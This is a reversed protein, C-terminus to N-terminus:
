ASNLDGYIFNLLSHIVGRKAHKPGTQDLTVFINNIQSTLQTIQFKCDMLEASCLKLLASYTLIHQRVYYSKHAFGNNTVLQSYLTKLNEDYDHMYHLLISLVAKISNFQFFMTVRFAPWSLNINNLKEFLVQELSSYNMHSQKPPKSM